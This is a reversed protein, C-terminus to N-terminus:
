GTRLSGVLELHRVEWIGPRFWVFIDDLDMSSGGIEEVNELDLAFILMLWTLGLRGRGTKSSVSLRELM